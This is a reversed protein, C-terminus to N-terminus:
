QCPEHGRIEDIISRTLCHTAHLVAGQRWLETLLLKGDDGIFTVGTLDIVAGRQQDSSLEKWCHDLEQVWAGMLRGEVRLKVGGDSRDPTIRLM